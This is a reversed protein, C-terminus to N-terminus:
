RLDIMEHFRAGTGILTIPVQLDEEMRHIYSCAEISLESWRSCGACEPFLYNLFNLAIDTPQNVEVALRAMPLNFKGVRRLKNTVTTFEAVENGVLASIYEWNVEDELPGSNGAVRIPFTRLVLYIKEVILPSLGVESLLASASTDRSTTFPYQGHYVSLGFGQSGELVIKKGARNASNIITSVNEVKYMDTLADKSLTYNGNRSLRDILSAGCGKGTSGISKVIDGEAQKHREEIIGSMGDVIIRGRTETVQTEDNLVVLDILAGAAILLQCDSNLFTAPIQRLKFIKLDPERIVTHGANPSGGRVAYQFENALFQVVKGKAESGYQGGVVITVNREVAKKMKNLLFVTFSYIM